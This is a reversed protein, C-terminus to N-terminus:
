DQRLISEKPVPVLCAPNISYGAYSNAAVLPKHYECVRGKGLEGNIIFEVDVGNNLHQENAECGSVICHM